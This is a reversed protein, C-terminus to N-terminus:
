LMVKTCKDEEFLPTILLLMFYDLLVVVVKGVRSPCYAHLMNPIPNLNQTSLFM